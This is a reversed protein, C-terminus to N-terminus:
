QFGPIARKSRSRPKRKPRVGNRTMGCFLARPPTIENVPSRRAVPVVATLRGMSGSADQFEESALRKVDSFCYRPPQGNERRRSNVGIICIQADLARNCPVNAQDEGVDLLGRGECESDNRAGPM